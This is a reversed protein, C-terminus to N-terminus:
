VGDPQEEGRAIINAVHSPCAWQDPRDAGSPEIQWGRVKLEMVEANSLLRNGRVALTHAGAARELTTTTWCEEARRSQCRILVLRGPETPRADAAPTTV